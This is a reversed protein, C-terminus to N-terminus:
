IPLVFCSMSQCGREGLLLLLTKPRIRDSQLCGLNRAINIFNCRPQGMVLKKFDIVQIRKQQKAERLREYSKHLMHTTAEFKSDNDAEWKKEAVDLQYTHRSDESREGLRNIHDLRKVEEKQQMPEHKHGSAELRFDFDETRKKDVVDIQNPHNLRMREKRQVPQCDFDHMFKRKKDLVEEIEEELFAKIEAMDLNLKLEKGKGFNGYCHNSKKKVLTVKYTRKNKGAVENTNNLGMRDAQNNLQCDEYSSIKPVLNLEKAEEYCHSRVDPVISDEQEEDELLSDDDLICSLKCTNDFNFAFEELPPCALGNWLFDGCGLVDDM